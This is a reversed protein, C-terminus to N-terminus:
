GRGWLTPALRCTSISVETYILHLEEVRGHARRELEKSKEAEYRQRTTETRVTMDVAVEVLATMLKM